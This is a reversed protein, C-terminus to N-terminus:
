AVRQVVDAGRSVFYGVQPATSQFAADVIDALFYRPMPAPTLANVLEALNVSGGNGTVVQKTPLDVVAIVPYVNSQSNLPPAPSASITPVYVRQGAIAAAYLQNPAAITEFDSDMNVYPTVQIPGQDGADSLRYLHIMGVRGDNKGEGGTQQAGYFEPVILLEDGDNTDGNNTVAVARPSRVTAVFATRSMLHTDIVGISSEAFEAVFLRAGTPSLALGTPESGVSIPSSVTPSSTNIGTIKVVTADARNAVYATTNDSAIVVASPGKGTPVTALKTNGATSFFSVSGDQTNVVAVTADDDSIAITSSKSPGKLPAMMTGGMDPNTMGSNSCSSVGMAAVLLTGGFLAGQRRPFLTKAM